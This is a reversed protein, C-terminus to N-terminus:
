EGPSAGQSTEPNRKSSIFYVALGAVLTALGAFSQVPRELILYGMMFATVVLFLIPTVPYGWTRYPRELEPQTRRLVM